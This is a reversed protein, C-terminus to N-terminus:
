KGTIQFGILETTHGDRNMSWAMRYIGNSIDINKFTIGDNCKDNVIMSFSKNIIDLSLRINNSDEYGNKLGTKCTSGDIDSKITVLDLESDHSKQRIIQWGKPRKYIIFWGYNDTGKPGFCSGDARNVADENVIGAYFPHVSGTSSLTVNFIWAIICNKWKSADLKFSGFATKWSSGKKASVISNEGNDGNSISLDKHCIEKDFQEIIVYFLLILDMLENPIIVLSLRTFGIVLIESVADVRMLKRQLSSM